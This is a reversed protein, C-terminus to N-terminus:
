ITLDITFSIRIKIECEFIQQISINYQDGSFQRYQGFRAELHDTQFKGPLRYQMKLEEICYKTMELFAYTTRHLVTFTEKTLKDNRGSISNWSEILDCFAAHFRFNEENVRFQNCYKNRLWCSKHPTKVNMITWWIYFINM